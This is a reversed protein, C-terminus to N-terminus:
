KPEENAEFNFMPQTDEKFSTGAVWEGSTVREDNPTVYEVSVFTGWLKTGEVWKSVATKGALLTVKDGASFSFDAPYAAAATYVTKNTM